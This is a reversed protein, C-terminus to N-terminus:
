AQAAAAAGTDSGAGTEKVRGAPGPSRAVPRKSGAAPVSGDCREQEAQWATQAWSSSALDSASRLCTAGRAGWHCEM